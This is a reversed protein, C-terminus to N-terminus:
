PSISSNNLLENMNFRMNENNVREVKKLPQLIPGLTLPKPESISAPISDPFSQLHFM